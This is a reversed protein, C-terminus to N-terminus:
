EGEFEDSKDWEDETIWEDNKQIVPCGAENIPTNQSAFDYATEKNNQIYDSLKSM